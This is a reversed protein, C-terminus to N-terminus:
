SHTLGSEILRYALYSTEYCINELEELLKDPSMIGNSRKLKRHLKCIKDDIENAHLDFSYLYDLYEEKFKEHPQVVTKNVVDFQEPTLVQDLDELSEINVLAGDNLQVIM